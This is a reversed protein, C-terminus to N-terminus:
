GRDFPGTRPLPPVDESPVMEAKRMLAMNSAVLLGVMVARAPVTKAATRASVTGGVTVTVLTVLRAM